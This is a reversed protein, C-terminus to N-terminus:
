ALHSSKNCVPYLAFCTHSTASHHQQLEGLEMADVDIIGLCRRPTGRSNPDLCVKDGAMAALLEHRYWNIVEFSYFVIDIRLRRYPHM